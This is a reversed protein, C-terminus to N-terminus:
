SANCRKWCLPNWVQGGGGQEVLSCGRAQSCALCFAYTDAHVLESMDAGGEVPAPCTDELDAEHPM